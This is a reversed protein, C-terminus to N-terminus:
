VSVGAPRRCRRHSKDVSAMNAASIEGDLALRVAKRWAGKSPDGLLFIEITVVSGKIAEVQVLAEILIFKQDRFVSPTNNAQKEALALANVESTAASRMLRQM